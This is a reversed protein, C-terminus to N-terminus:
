NANFRAGSVRIDYDNQAPNSTSLNGVANGYLYAAANAVGFNASTDAERPTIQSIRKSLPSLSQRDSKESYKKKKKSKSRNSDPIYYDSKLARKFIILLPIM